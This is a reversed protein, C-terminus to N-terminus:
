KLTYIFCGWNGGASAVLLWRGESPLRFASAYFLGTFMGTPRVVNGQAFVVQETPADLRAARVTLPPPSVWTTHVPVWYFKALGQHWLNSYFSVPGVIFEGSRVENLGAVDVCKRESSGARGRALFGTEATDGPSLHPFRAGESEAAVVTTAVSDSPLSKRGYQINQADLATASVLLTFVGLGQM